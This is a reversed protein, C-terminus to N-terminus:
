MNLPHHQGGPPALLQTTLVDCAGVYGRVAEMALEHVKDNVKIARYPIYSEIRYLNRKLRYM